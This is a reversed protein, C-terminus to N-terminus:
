CEGFGLCWLNGLTKRKGDRGNEENGKVVMRTRRGTRGGTAKTTRGNKVVEVWLKVEIVGKVLTMGFVRMIYEVVKGELFIMDLDCYM